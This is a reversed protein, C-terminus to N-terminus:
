YGANYQSSDIAPSSTSCVWFLHSPDETEIQVEKMDEQGDSGLSSPAEIEPGDQSIIIHDGLFM